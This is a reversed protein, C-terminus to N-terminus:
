HSPSLPTSARIIICTCSSSTSSTASDSTFFTDSETRSIMRLAAVSTTGSSTSTPTPLLQCSAWQNFQRRKGSYNSVAYQVSSVFGSNGGLRAMKEIHIGPGNHRLNLRRGRKGSIIAILQNIRRVAICPVGTWREHMRFTYQCLKFITIFTAQKCRTHCCYRCNKIGQLWAAVHYDGVGHVPSCFAPYYLVTLSLIDKQAPILGGTDFRDFVSNLAVICGAQHPNFCRSIRHHLHSIYRRCGGHRVLGICHQHHVTSGTGGHDGSRQVKTGIQNNVRCSFRQVPVTIYKGTGNNSCVIM